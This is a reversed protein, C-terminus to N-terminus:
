CDAGRCYLAVFVESYIRWQGNTKRWAASYQGGRELKGSKTTRSGIWKGHEIALPYSDSVTIETPTRVYVVDPFEDFHAQFSEGHEARSREISGTSVSIVFDDDIFSQISDVDHRAIAENSQLRNSRIVDADDVAFLPTTAAVTFIAFWISQVVRM